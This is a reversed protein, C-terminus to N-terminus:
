GDAEPVGEGASAEAVTVDLAATDDGIGESGEGRGGRRGRDDDAIGGSIDAGSM